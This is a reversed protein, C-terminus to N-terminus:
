IPSLYSIQVEILYLDSLYLGRNREQELYDTVTNGDHVEGMHKILGSYFLMRETTTTKGADIHASIGINRIKSINENLKVSKIPKSAVNKFYYTQCYYLTAKCHKSLLLSPGFLKGGM